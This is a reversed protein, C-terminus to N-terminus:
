GEFYSLYDEEDMEDESDSEINDDDSVDDGDQSEYMEDLINDHLYKSTDVMESEKLLGANSLLLRLNQEDLPEVIDQTLLDKYVDISRIFKEVRNAHAIKIANERNKKSEEAKAKKLDSCESELEEVKKKLNNIEKNLSEIKAIHELSEKCLTTYRDNFQRIASKLKIPEKYYADILADTNIRAFKTDTPKSPLVIKNHEENFKDIRGKIKKNNTFQSYRIKEFGFEERAFEAIKNPVLKVVHPNKILYQEVIDLLIKDTYVKNRGKSEKKKTM